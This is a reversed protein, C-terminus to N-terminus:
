ASAAEEITRRILAAVIASGRQRAGRRPLARLAVAFTLAGAGSLAVGGVVMQDSRGRAGRELVASAVDFANILFCLGAAPRAHRPSRAAALALCGSVFLHGGFARLMLRPEALGHTDPAFRAAVMREPAILSAAGYAVHVVAGATM